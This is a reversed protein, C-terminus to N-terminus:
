WGDWGNDKRKGAPAASASAPTASGVAEGGKRMAATGISSPKASSEAATTPAEGFSDWFDKHEPDVTSSAEKSSAAHQPEGHGGEVFRNFSESASKASSQLGSGAQLAATRAQAALDSSAITKATPQIYTDNVSKATRTLSTTFWGLGKTLAAVPDSQFEETSPIGGQNKGRPNPSPDTPPPAPSSGFGALRGGQSPPLNEPRSANAAGLQSFYAENKEKQSSPLNSRPASSESLSASGIGNAGKRPGGLPTESRSNVNASARAKYAERDNKWRERDFDKEDVKASLREKWEDGIDGEYREKISSDDFNKGGNENGINTNYFDQWAKNGGYQMRLIENQKFADM